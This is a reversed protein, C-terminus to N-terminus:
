YIFTLNELKIGLLEAILTSNKFSNGNSGKFIKANLNFFDCTAKNFEYAFSLNSASVNVNYFSYLESSDGYNAISFMVYCDLCRLNSCSVNLIQNTIIPTDCDLTEFETSLYYPGTDSICESVLTVSYNQASSLNQCIIQFKTTNLYQRGYKLGLRLKLGM